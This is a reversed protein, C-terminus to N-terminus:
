DLSFQAGLMFYVTFKLSLGFFYLTDLQYKLYENYIDNEKGLPSCVTFENQHIIPIMYSTVKYATVASFGPM